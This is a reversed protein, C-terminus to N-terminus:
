NRIGICNDVVSCDLIKLKVIILVKFANKVILVIRHNQHDGYKVHIVSDLNTYILFKFNKIMKINNINKKIM